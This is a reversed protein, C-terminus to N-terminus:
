AATATLAARADVPVDTIVADCSLRALRRLERRRNVTWPIVAIGVAHAM